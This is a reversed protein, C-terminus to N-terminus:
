FNTCNLILCVAKQIRIFADESIRGMRQVVLSENLTIL